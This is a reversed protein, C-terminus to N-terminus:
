KFSGFEDAEVLVIDEGNEILNSNYNESIGGVFSTFSINNELLLHSLITSTTTKGHTGAIAICFKNQTIVGLVESRKFIKYDNEIFYNLEVDDKSIAPTYVILTNANDKFEMPINSVKSEYHIQAGNNSLRLTLDSKTKDYGGVMKNNNLYFLAISSMGIGGIGIFYIKSYNIEM